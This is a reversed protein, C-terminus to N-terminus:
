ERRESFQREEDKPTKKMKVKLENQGANEEELVGILYYQFKLVKQKKVKREYNWSMINTVM